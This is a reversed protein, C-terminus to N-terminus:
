SAHHARSGDAPVIWLDSSQDKEDYAPETRSFCSGSATPASWPGGVRPMLWMTEHTLPLKAQAHAMPALAAAVAFVLTSAVIRIRPRSIPM